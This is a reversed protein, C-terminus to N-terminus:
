DEIKSTLVDIIDLSAPFSNGEDRLSDALGDEEKLTSDQSLSPSLSKKGTIDLNFKENVKFTENFSFSSPIHNAIM